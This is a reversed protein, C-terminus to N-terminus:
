DGGFVVFLLVSLLFPTYFVFCFMLPTWPLAEKRTNETKRAILVVNGRYYFCDNCSVLFYLSSPGGGGKDVIDNSTDYFFFFFEIAHVVYNGLITNKDEGVRPTNNDYWLDYVARGSSPLLVFFLYLPRVCSFVCRMLLLVITDGLCFRKGNHPSRDICRRHVTRM